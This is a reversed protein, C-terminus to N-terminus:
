RNLNQIAVVIFISERTVTNLERPDVEADGKLRLANIVATEWPPAFGNVGTAAALIDPTREIAFPAYKARAGLLLRFTYPTSSSIVLGM